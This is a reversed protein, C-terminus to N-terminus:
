PTYGLLTVRVGKPELYAELRTFTQDAFPISVILTGCISEGLPDLAGGLISVDLGEERVLGAVIPEGAQAGSFFLRAVLTKAGQPTSQLREKVLRPVRANFLHQVLGKTVEHHPSLFVDGVSGQDVVRGGDLVVVHTCLDRVIAMEHTILVMTLKLTHNLHALLSLIDQTTEPDLASTAEDCLLLHPDSALARAIAVRQAQGGSLEGPFASEKHSLGVLDLCQRAKERAKVRAVGVLELPLMVNELCTRRRLLHFQQFILSIRQRVQRLGASSLATLARGEFSVQGKDPVELGNLCRLLTSKGAGSKGVIGLITGPAVQFSVDQLAWANGGYSKSVGELNLVSTISSSQTIFVFAGTTIEFSNTPHSGM